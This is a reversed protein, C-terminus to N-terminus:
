QFVVNDVVPADVFVVPGGFATQDREGPILNSGGLLLGDTDQSQEGLM